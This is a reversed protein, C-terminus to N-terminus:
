DNAKGSTDWAEYLQILSEVVIDTYRLATIAEMNSKMTHLLTPFLLVSEEPRSLCM